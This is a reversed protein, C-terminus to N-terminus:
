NNKLLICIITIDDIGQDKLRWRKVSEKYLENVIINANKKSILKKIVETVEKNSMYEWLGDSAIIIAKDEEKIIYEGVEPTSIVGVSAGVEDGFSRTMALGPGDSEKVWVRLPGTWNGDDDEIKEIEGDYDLIRQAEDKEVPKHDRSLQQCTWLKHKTEKIIIARSDGVNGIYIKNMNNGKLLISVCTSGSYEVDFINDEDTKLNLLYKCFESLNQDTRSFSKEFVKRIKELINNNSDEIKEKRVNVKANTNYSRSMEKQLLNVKSEEDEYLKKLEKELESPLYKRLFKSVHHGHEGHGDCVGIFRLDDGLSYNFYNDQNTKTEGFVVEGAKCIVGIEYISKYKFNYKTLFKKVRNTSSSMNGHNDSISKNKEKNNIYPKCSNRKTLPIDINQHYNNNTEVNKSNHSLKMKSSIKKKKHTNENSNKSKHHNNFNFNNYHDNNITNYRLNASNNDINKNMNNLTNTPYINNQNNSKVNFKKKYNKQIKNQHPISHNNIDKINKDKIKDKDKKNIKPNKFSNYQNHLSLTNPSKHFNTHNKNEIPKQLNISNKSKNNYDNNNKHNNVKSSKNNNINEEKKNNDDCVNNIIDSKNNIKEKEKGKEKEIGMTKGNDINNNIMDNNSNNIIDSNEKLSNIEKDDKDNQGGYISSLNIKKGFGNNNNNNTMTTSVSVVTKNNSSNSLNNNNQSNIRATNIINNNPAIDNSTISISNLYTNGTKNLNKKGNNKTLVNQNYNYFNSIAYNNKIIDYNIRNNHKFKIKPNNANNHSTNNITTSNSTNMTYNLKKKNNVKNNYNYNYNDKIKKDDKLQEKLLYISEQINKIHELDKNYNSIDFESHDLIHIKNLKKNKLNKYFNNISSNYNYINIDYNDEEVLNTKNLNVKILPNEKYKTILNNNKNKFSNFVEIKDNYSDRNILNDDLKKNKQTLKIINKKKKYYNNNKEYKLAPASLYREHISTIINGNVDSCSSKNMNVRNTHLYHINNNFYKYKNFRTSDKKKTRSSSKNKKKLYNGKINFYHPKRRTKISPNKIDKINNSKFLFKQGQNQPKKIDKNSQEPPNYNAILQKISTTKM